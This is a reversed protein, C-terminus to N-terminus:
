KITIVLIHDYKPNDVTYDVGCDQFAQILSAFELASSPERLDFTIQKM